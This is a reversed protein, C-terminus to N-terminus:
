KRLRQGTFDKIAVITRNKDSTIATALIINNPVRLKM